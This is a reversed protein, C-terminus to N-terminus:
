IKLNISKFFPSDIDIDSKEASRKSDPIIQLSKIKLHQPKTKKTVINKPYKPYNKENSKLSM